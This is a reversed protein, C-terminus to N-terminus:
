TFTWFSCDPCRPRDPCTWGQRVLKECAKRVYRPNKLKHWNVSVTGQVKCDRNGCLLQIEGSGNRLYPLLQDILKSEDCSM